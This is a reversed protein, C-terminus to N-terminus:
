CSPPLSSSGSIGVAVKPYESAPLLGKFVNEFNVVGTYTSTLSGNVATATSSVLPVAGVCDSAPWLDTHTSMEEQASACYGTKAVDYRFPGKMGDGAETENGGIADFEVRRTWISTSNVSVGAPMTTIFEGLSSQPCLSSAVADYTCVYLRQPPCPRTLTRLAAAASAITVNAEWANQETPDDQDVGLYKADKWEYVVLALQGKSSPGFLVALALLSTDPLKGGNVATIRM